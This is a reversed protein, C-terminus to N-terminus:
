FDIVPNISLNTQYKAPLSYVTDFTLPYRVFILYHKM